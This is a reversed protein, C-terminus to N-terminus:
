KLAVCSTKVSALREQERGETRGEERAEHKIIAEEEWRQMYRVGVKESAKIQSVRNIIRELNDNKIETDRSQNYEIIEM